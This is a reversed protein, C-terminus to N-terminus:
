VYKLRSASWQMNGLDDCRCLLTEVLLQIALGQHTRKGFAERTVLAEGPGGGIGERQSRRGVGLCLLLSGQGQQELLQEGKEALEFANERLIPNKDPHAPL